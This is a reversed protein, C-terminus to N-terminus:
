VEFKERFEAIIEKQRDTFRVRGRNSDIFDSQWQTLTPEGELEKLVRACEEDNPLIM